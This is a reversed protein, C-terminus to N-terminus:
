LKFDKFRDKMLEAASMATEMKDMVDGDNDNELDDFKQSVVEIFKQLRNELSNMKEVMNEWRAEQRGAEYAEKKIQEIDLGMSSKSLGNLLGNEFPYWVAGRSNSSDDSVVLSFKGDGIVDLSNVFHEFAAQPTALNTAGAVKKKSGNEIRYYSASNSEFVKKIKELDM